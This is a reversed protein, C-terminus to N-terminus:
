AAAKRFKIIKCSRDKNKPCKMYCWWSSKGNNCKAPSKLPGGTDRPRKEKEAKITGAAARGGLKAIAGSLEIIRLRCIEIEGSVEKKFHDREDELGEIKEQYSRRELELAEIAHYFGKPM